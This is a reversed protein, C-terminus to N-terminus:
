VCTTGFCVGVLIPSIMVLAGPAVMERLSADTSITICRRLQLRHLPLSLACECGLNTSTM